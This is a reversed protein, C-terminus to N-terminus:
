KRHTKNTQNWWLGLAGGMKREWFGISKSWRVVLDRGAPTDWDHEIDAHCVLGRGIRDHHCFRCELPQNGTGHLECLGNKLFTCGQDAFIERAFEGENGKFAPSLVGYVNGPAMELMMRSGYGADVACAAEAVTWWGPRKCYNLCVECACPESPPYKAALSKKRTM